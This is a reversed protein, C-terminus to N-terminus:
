ETLDLLLRKTTARPCCKPRSQIYKITSECLLNSHEAMFSNIRLPGLRTLNMASASILQETVRTTDPDVM